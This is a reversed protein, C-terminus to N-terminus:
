PSPEELSRDRDKDRLTLEERVIPWERPADVGLTVRGPATNNTVVIRVTGEPTEVLLAEGVHRELQLM